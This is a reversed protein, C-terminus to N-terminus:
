KSSDIPQNRCGQKLLSLKQAWFSPIDTFSNELVEITHFLEANKTPQGKSWCDLEHFKAQWWKWSRQNSFPQENERAKCINSWLGTATDFEGLQCLLRARCRIMDVDNEMGDEALSNLLKEAKSLESKEKNAAFISIEALFLGAQQHQQGNLCSYCLEALRKCKRFLGIANSDEPQQQLYDIENVVESLFEMAEGTYKCSNPDIVSLLNEVSEDFRDLRKLARSKLVILNPDYVIEPGALIDIVKQACSKDKSELLLQCYITIAEARIDSGTKNQEACNAILDKLQELLKNRQSESKHENEQIAQIILDLRVRTHFKAGSDAAIKQQLKRGKESSECNNLVISYLYELEEYDTESNELCNIQRKVVKIEAITFYNEFAKLALRCHSSDAAFLNYAFRAAQAAIQEAEMNLRDSKQTCQLNSAKILLDVARIPSSDVSARATVYLILPTQFKETELLYDLLMKHEEPSSKWAAKAALEIEFVDTQELAHKDLRGSTILRSYDALILFGLPDEIQPWLSITKKLAQPQNLRRQLFALSLPLELDNACTSKALEVDIAELQNPETLGVLKIKELLARFYIADPKDALALILDFQEIALPKYAPDAQSLLNFVKARLLRSGTSSYMRDRLDLRTLIQHLLEDRRPQDSALALYFDIECKTLDTTYIHSFLKRWLGTVGYRRDWDPGQYEEIRDNLESQSKAIAELHDGARKTIKHLNDKDEITSFLGSFEYRLRIPFSQQMFDDMTLKAMQSLSNVDEATPPAAAIEAYAPPLFLLLFAICFVLTSKPNSKISTGM